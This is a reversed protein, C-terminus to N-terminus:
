DDDENVQYWSLFAEISNLLKSYIESTRKEEKIHFEIGYHFKKLISLSQKVIAFDTFNELNDQLKNCIYEIVEESREFRIKERINILIIKQIDINNEWIFYIDWFISLFGCISRELILYIELLKKDWQLIHPQVYKLKNIFSFVSWWLNSIMQIKSKDEIKLNNLTDMILDAKKKSELVRSHLVKQDAKLIESSVLILWSVKSIYEKDFLESDQLNSIQFSPDNKIKSIIDKVKEEVNELNTIMFYIWDVIDVRALVSIPELKEDIPVSDSFGDTDDYKALYWIYNNWCMWLQIVETLVQDHNQYRRILLNNGFHSLMDSAVLRFSVATRKLYIFQLNMYKTYGNKM